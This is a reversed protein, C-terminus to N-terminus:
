EFRSRAAVPVRFVDETDDDMQLILALTPKVSLPQLVADARRRPHNHEAVFAMSPLSVHCHTLSSLFKAHPDYVGNLDLAM